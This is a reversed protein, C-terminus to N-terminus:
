FAGGFQFVPVVPDVQLGAGSELTQERSDFDGPKRSYHLLIPLLFGSALGVGAGAVVDSFFHRNSSIRLLGVAAAAGMAAGCAIRDAGGGGYLPLKSHHICTLAAGTFAMATHGSPHSKTSQRKCGESTPDEYCPGRGPRERGILVKGLQVALATTAFSEINMLLLQSSVISDRHVYGGVWVADAVPYLILSWVLYDSIRAALDQAELSNPLLMNRMTGDLLFPGTWLPEDMEQWLFEISAAALLAGGTYVYETTSFKSWADNWAVDSQARAEGPLLFVAMLVVVILSRFKM